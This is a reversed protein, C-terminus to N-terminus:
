AAVVKRLPSAIARPLRSSLLGADVARAVEPCARVMALVPVGLADEIDARRLARGMEDIVVAGSARVSSSLDVARRLALYCPRLVLLSMAAGAVVAAALGDVSPVGADVVVPRGGRVGAPLGDGLAPLLENGDAASRGDLPAGRALLRLGPAAAVELRRLADADAPGASLWEAIGAREDAAGSRRGLVAPLDGALDVLLVDDVVRSALVLGLAAAVVSTGSGGKASWCAILM